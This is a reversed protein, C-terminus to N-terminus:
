QPLKRLETRKIWRVKLKAEGDVACKAAKRNQPRVVPVLLAEGRSKMALYDTVVCRLKRKNQIFYCVDGPLLKASM